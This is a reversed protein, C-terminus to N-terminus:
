YSNSMAKIYYNILETLLIRSLSQIICLNVWNNVFHSTVYVHNENHSDDFKFNIVIVVLLLM